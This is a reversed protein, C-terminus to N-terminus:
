RTVVPPAGVAPASAAPRAFAPSYQLKADKRLAAMAVGVASKQREALLFRAIAPAATRRDVPAPHLHLITYIRAGGTQEVVISDGQKTQSLVQLLSLPVDEASQAYQRATYNLHLQELALRVEILGRVNPMAAKLLAIEDAGAEVATDNILYLRRQAFLAPHADYYRDIEDSSPSNVKNAIHDHYARALVERRQLELAQIVDPDKNLGAATAAQAALEQDILVELVNAAAEENAVPLSRLYLRVAARVQHASIERDNAKVAVQSEMPVDNRGCGAAILVVVMTLPVLPQRLHLWSM